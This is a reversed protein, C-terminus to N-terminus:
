KADTQAISQYLQYREDIQKQLEGQLKQYTEKNMRKLINFRNQKSEFEELSGKPEKSAIELPNDKRPDYSYLMWYGCNVADKQLDIATQMNVGQAICHAYAILISPGPYAEAARITKIAHMPNAGYAIQGVFVNGYAMAMLGLAKKRTPKGGVAFKGVAGWPPSNSA